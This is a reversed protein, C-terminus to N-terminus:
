RCNFGAIQQIVTAEAEDKVFCTIKNGSFHDKRSEKGRIQNRILNLVDTQCDGLNADVWADNLNMGDVLQEVAIMAVDDEHDIFRKALGKLFPALRPLHLSAIDRANTDAMEKSIYAKLRTTAPILIKEIPELNYFSATFIAVIQPPNIWGTTRICPFGRRYETYNNFSDRVEWPEFHGTTCLIDTARDIDSTPVCIELDHCIRPVNYYNLVLEGIICIPIGYQSLIRTAVQAVALNM